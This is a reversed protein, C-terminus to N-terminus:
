GGIQFWSRAPCTVLTPVDTIGGPRHTLWNDFPHKTAPASSVCSALQNRRSPVGGIQATASLPCLPSSETVQSRQEALDSGGDMDVKRTSRYM